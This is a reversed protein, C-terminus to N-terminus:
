RRSAVAAVTGAAAFAGLTAGLSEAGLTRGMLAGVLMGVVVAYAPWRNPGDASDMKRDARASAPSDPANVPEVRRLAERATRLALLPVFSRVRSPWLDAVAAGATREVVETALSAGLRGDRRDRDLERLVRALVDDYTLQNTAAEM